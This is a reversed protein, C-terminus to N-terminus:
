WAGALMTGNLINNLLEESGVDARSKFVFIQIKRKLKKEFLSLDLPRKSATFVAIDIDSDQKAEAKALSGFLIIVPSIFQQNAYNVFEKLREGWYSRSLNVFLQSERNAWYFIYRREETHKLLGQKALSSLLTSASPPSIKAFRAYERVGVRRYNDEFFPKLSNFIDLM